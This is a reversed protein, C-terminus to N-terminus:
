AKSARGPWAAPNVLFTPREGQFVQMIQGVIGASMAKLGENTFAATHPTVMVNPM